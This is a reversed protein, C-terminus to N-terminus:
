KKVLKSIGFVVASLVLAVAEALAFPLILDRALGACLITAGALVFMSAVVGLMLSSANSLNSTATTRKALELAGRLPLFGVIGAVVGLIAAIIMDRKRVTPHEIQVYSHM